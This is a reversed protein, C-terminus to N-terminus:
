KWIKIIKCSDMELECFYEEKTLYQIFENFPRNTQAPNQHFAKRVDELTFRKDANDSLCQNYGSDYLWHEYEGKKCTGDIAKFKEYTDVIGLEKAVEDSFPITPLNHASNQSAVIRFPIEEGKETYTYNFSENSVVIWYGDIKILKHHTM